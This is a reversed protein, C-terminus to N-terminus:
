LMYWMLTSARPVLSPRPRNVSVASTSFGAALSRQVVTTAEVEPESPLKSSRFRDLWPVRM